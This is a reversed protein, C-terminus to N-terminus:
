SINTDLRKIQRDVKSKAKLSEQEKNRLSKSRNGSENEKMLKGSQKKEGRKKGNRLAEIEKKQAELM